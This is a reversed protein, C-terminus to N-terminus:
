EWEPAANRVRLQDWADSHQVPGTALAFSSLEPSHKAVHKKTAALSGTATALIIALALTAKTLM